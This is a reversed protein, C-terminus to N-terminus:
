KLFELVIRDILKRVDASPSAYNNAMIAFAYRRGDKRLLYGALASVHSITGTKARVDPRPKKDFRNYLTGDIGGIPLTVVWAEGHPSSHMFALLSTTTKPTILNQRSLGSGDTLYYGSSEVKAEALLKDLENLGTRRSGVGEKARAVERLVIEAHLNQSEKNVVRLAEILPASENAAVEVGTPEAAPDDPLRHRARAVGEVQIGKRILADRLAHAAFLAPDGVAVLNERTEAGLAIDGSVVLETSGPLRDIDIRHAPTATTRTRNHVILYELPPW